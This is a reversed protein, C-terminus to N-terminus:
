ILQPKEKEGKRKKQGQIFPCNKIDATETIRFLFSYGQKRYSPFSFTMQYYHRQFPSIKNAISEITKKANKQVCYQLYTRSLFNQKKVKKALTDIIACNTRGQKYGLLLFQSLYQCIDSFFKKRKILRGQRKKAVLILNATLNQVEIKKNWALTTQKRVKQLSMRNQPSTQWSEREECKKRKCNATQLRNQAQGSM